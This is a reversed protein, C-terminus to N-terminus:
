ELGWERGYGRVIREREEVPLQLLLRACEECAVREQACDIEHFTAMCWQIHHDEVNEDDLVIHLASGVSSYTYIRLIAHKLKEEIPNDTACLEVTLGDDWGTVDKVLLQLLEEPISTTRVHICEKGTDIWDPDCVTLLDKLAIM